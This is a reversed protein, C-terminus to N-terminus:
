AVEGSAVAAYHLGAADAAARSVVARLGKAAGGMGAAFVFEYDAAMSMVLRALRPRTSRIGLAEARKRPM